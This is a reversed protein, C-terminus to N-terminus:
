LTKMGSVITAAQWSGRRRAGRRPMSYFSDRREVSSSVSWVATTTAVHAVQELARVQIDPITPQESVDTYKYQTHNTRTHSLFLSFLHVNLLMFMNVLHEVVLYTTRVTRESLAYVTVTYYM